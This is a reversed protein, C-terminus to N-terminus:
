EGLNKKAMARFVPSWGEKDRCSLNLNLDSRILIEAMKTEGTKLAKMFPTDWFGHLRCPVGWLVFNKQAILKELCKVNHGGIAAHALTGWEAKVNYDINPQEMIIDVIDPKGKELAWHLPTDCEHTQNWEVRGTKALTRVHETQGEAIAEFLIEM